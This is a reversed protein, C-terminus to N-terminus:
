RFLIFYWYIYRACDTKHKPYVVAKVIKARSKSTNLPTVCIQTCDSSFVSLKEGESTEGAASSISYDKHLVSPHDSAKCLCLLSCDWSVKVMNNPGGYRFCHGKEKILAKRKDIPRARFSRCENMAILNYLEWSYSM